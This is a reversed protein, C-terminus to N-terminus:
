RALLDELTRVAADLDAPLLIAGDTPGAARGGVAIVLDPRAERLRRAVTAVASADRETVAGIVAVRAHEAAAVWDEIPLDPGLYTVPIGARRAAIAFGLAGLEHRSGPPLGVLVSGAAGRGHGTAELVAGMRRLVAHSAMHEGAVSVRGASWGEGLARLAPFLFTRAVAEFSGRAVTEDLLAVLGREDLAAALDVFRTVFADTIESASPDGPREAAERAGHAAEFAAAVGPGDDIVARAAVSPQWGAGVLTRMARVRAIADDDYLRYGSATREPHVVGYRREWARMVPVSVGARAAAQKITYM